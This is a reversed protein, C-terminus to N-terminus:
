ATCAVSQGTKGKPIGDVYNMQIFAYALLPVFISGASFVFFVTWETQLLCLSILVARRLSACLM